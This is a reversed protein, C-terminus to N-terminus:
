FVKALRVVAIVPADRDTRRAVGIRFREDPTSLYLGLSHKYGSLDQPLGAAIDADRSASATAGVNNELVLRIDDWPWEAFPAVVLDTQLLAMRNGEMSNQPYGPLSGFGGLTFRRQPPADGTSSALRARADIWIIGPAVPAKIRGDVVYQAFTTEDVSFEAVAEMGWRLANVPVRTMYDALLNIAVTRMPGEAVPPVEAFPQHPGFLSWGVERKSNRYNDYRYEVGIGTRQNLFKQVGASFGRRQFYDRADIGALAAFLSNELSSMKWADRTDTMIHGEISFRLPAERSLFDRKLGAGTQWYHSGFGYGLTFWGQLRRDLFRRAPLDSGVGIYLGDARDYSLISYDDQLGLYDTVGEIPFFRPRLGGPLPRRWFLSDDEDRVPLSDNTPYDFLRPDRQVLSDAARDVSTQAIGAASAFLVLIATCLGIELWRRSQEPWV